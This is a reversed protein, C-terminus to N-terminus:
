GEGGLPLAEQLREVPRLPDERRRFSLDALDVRWRYILRGLVWLGALFSITYTYPRSGITITSGERVTRDGAYTGFVQITQGEEYSGGSEVVTVRLPREEYAGDVVLEVDNELVVPDTEVVTGTVVVADGPAVDGREIEEHSPYSGLAPNPEVTGHWVMAGFLLGLLLAVAIVRGSRSDLM